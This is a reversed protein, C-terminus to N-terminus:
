PYLPLQTSLWGFYPPESERGPANWLKRSRDYNAKSLSVWVSWRFVGAADVLPIDINGLIFFYKRDIECQDSSLVARKRREKELIGFWQAPAPSGYSLPPGEHYQGCIQCIYGEASM